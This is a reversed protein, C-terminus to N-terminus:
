GITLSAWSADKDEQIGSVEATRRLSLDDRTGYRNLAAINANLLPLQLYDGSGGAVTKGLAPGISGLSRLSDGRSEAEAVGAKMTLDALSRGTASTNTTMHSAANGGLTTMNFLRDWHRMSEEGVLQANFRALTELGAGSGYLGRASLQRNLSREGEAQEWRFLSGGMMADDLNVDGKLIGSLRDGADIGYQRFPAVDARAKDDLELATKRAQDAAYKIAEAQKKSASSGMIGSFISGGAQAAGAVALMTMPEISCFAKGLGKEWQWFKM